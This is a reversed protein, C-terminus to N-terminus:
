MGGIVGPHRHRGVALQRPLRPPQWAGPQLGPDGGTAAMVAEVAAVLDFAELVAACDTPRVLLCRQPELSSQFLLECAAAESAPTEGAASNSVVKAPGSGGDAALHCRM